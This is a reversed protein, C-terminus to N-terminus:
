KKRGRFYFAYNSNSYGYYLSDKIFRGSSGFAGTNGTPTYYGPGFTGDYKVNYETNSNYQTSDNTIELRVAIQGLKVVNITTNLTDQSPSSTFFYLETTGTYEGAVVESLDKTCGTILMYGSCVTCLMKFNFHLKNM